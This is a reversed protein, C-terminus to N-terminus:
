VYTARRRPKRQAYQLNQFTSDHERNQSPYRPVRFFLGPEGPTGSQPLLFRNAGPSDSHWTHNPSIPIYIPIYLWSFVHYVSHYVSCGRGCRRSCRRSCRRGRRRVCRRTCGPSHLPPQLTSKCRRGCRRSTRAHSACASSARASSAFTPVSGVSPGCGRACVRHGRAEDVEGRLRGEAQPCM